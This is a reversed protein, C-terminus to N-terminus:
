GDKSIEMGYQDTNYTINIQDYWKLIFMSVFAPNLILWCDSGLTRWGNSQPGFHKECWSDILGIDNMRRFSKKCQIRVSNSNQKDVM